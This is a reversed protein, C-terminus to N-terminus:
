LSHTASGEKGAQRPYPYCDGRVGRLGIPHTTVMILDHTFCYRGDVHEGPGGCDGERGEVTGRWTMGHAEGKLEGKERRGEGKKGKERRGEGQERGRGGVGKERERKGGAKERM